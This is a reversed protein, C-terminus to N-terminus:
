LKKNEDPRMGPSFIQKFLNDGGNAGASLIVKIKNIEEKRYATEGNVDVVVIDAEAKATVTKEVVFNMEIEVEKVMFLEPLGLQKREEESEMLQKQISHIVDKLHLSGEKKKSM